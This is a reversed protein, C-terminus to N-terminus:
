FYKLMDMVYVKEQMILVMKQIILKIETMISIIAIM